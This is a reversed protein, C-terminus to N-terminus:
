LWHRSVTSEPASYQAQKETSEWIKAAWTRADIAAKLEANTELGPLMDSARHVGCRWGGLLGWRQCCNERMVPKHKLQSRYDLSTQKQMWNKSKEEHGRCWLVENNELKTSTKVVCFCKGTTDGRLQATPPSPSGGSSLSLRSRETGETTSLVHYASLVYITYMWLFYLHTICNSL